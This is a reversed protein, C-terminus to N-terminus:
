PLSQLAKSIMSMSSSISLTKGVEYAQHVAVSRFHQPSPVCAIAACRLVRSALGPSGAAALAGFQTGAQTLRTAIQSENQRIKRAEAADAANV